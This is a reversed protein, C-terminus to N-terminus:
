YSEAAMRAELRWEPAARGIEELTGLVIASERPIASGARATRGLMGRMGRILESRASAEIASGGLAAVMAPMAQRYQDLAAGTVAEYRLWAQYGTEARLGAAGSLLM